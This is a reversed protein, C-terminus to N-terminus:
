GHVLSRGQSSKCFISLYSMNKLTRPLSLFISLITGVAGFIMNCAGHDTLVNMMISFTLVHAAMLFLFIMTQAFGAVEKGVRGLMLEVADAFNHIQPYAM